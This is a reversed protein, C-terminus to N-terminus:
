NIQATSGTELGLAQAVKASVLLTKKDKDFAYNEKV